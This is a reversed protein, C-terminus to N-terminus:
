ASAGGAPRKFSPLSLRVRPKAATEDQSADLLAAQTGAAARLIVLDRELDKIRRKQQAMARYAPWHNLWVCLAGAFFGCAAFGMLYYALPALVAPAFPNWHFAVIQTNMVAVAALALAFVFGALWRLFRLM